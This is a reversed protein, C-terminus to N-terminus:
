NSSWAAVLPPLLLELVAIREIDVGAEYLSVAQGELEPPWAMAGVNIGVGIVAIDDTQEILVGALKRGDLLVDNPAKVRLRRPLLDGLSVVMASAVARSREPRRTAPLVVSFALGADGGGFWAHGRQGRGATQQGTVVVSGLGMARAQDQTSECSSMVRSQILPAGIQEVLSEVRDPWHTISM